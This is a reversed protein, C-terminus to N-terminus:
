HREHSAKRRRALLMLSGGLLVGISGPEPVNSISMPIFVLQDQVSPDTLLAVQSEPLSNGVDNQIATLYSQAAATVGAPNQDNAPDVWMREGADNPDNPALTYDDDFALKWLALQFAENGNVDTPGPYFSGFLKEINATRTNDFVVPGTGPGPNTQPYPPNQTPSLLEVDSFSSIGPVYIDQGVEACFARFTNPIITDVGPGPTDTRTADLIAASAGGTEGTPFTSDFYVFQIGYPITFNATITGGKTPAAILVIGILSTFLAGRQM